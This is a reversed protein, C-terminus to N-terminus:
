LFINPSEMEALKFPDLKARFLIIKIPFDVNAFILTPTTILANNLTTAQVLEPGLRSIAEIEEWRSSTKCDM